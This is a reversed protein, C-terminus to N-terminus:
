SGFALCGSADRTRDMYKSWAAQEIRGYVSPVQGAKGDILRGSSVVLVGTKKDTYRQQAWQVVKTYRDIKNQM